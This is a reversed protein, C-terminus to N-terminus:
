RQGELTTGIWALPKLFAWFAIELMLHPTPPWSTELARKAHLAPVIPQPSRANRKM